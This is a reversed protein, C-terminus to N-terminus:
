QMSDVRGPPSIGYGAQLGIGWRHQKVAAVVHTQRYIDMSVLVPRYGDIVASYDDTAYVRREIPLAVRISDAHSLECATSDATSIDETKAFLATYVATQPLWCTDIRQVTIYQPAPVPCPCRPRNPEAAGACFPSLAPLLFMLPGCMRWCSM